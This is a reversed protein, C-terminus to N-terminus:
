ARKTPMTYLLAAADPTATVVPGMPDRPMYLRVRREHKRGGTAEAIAAAEALYAPDLTVWEDHPAVGGLWRRWDPYSGDPIAFEHAAGAGLWSFRVKGADRDVEIWATGDARLAPKAATAIALAPVLVEGDWPDGDVIPVRVVALRYLDCGVVVVRHGAGAECSLALCEMVPRSGDKAAYRAATVFARAIAPAALLVRNM